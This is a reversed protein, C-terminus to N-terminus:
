SSIAIPVTVVLCREGCRSLEPIVMPNAPSEGTVAKWALTELHVIRNRERHGYPCTFRSKGGILTRGLFKWQVSQRDVQLKIYVIQLEPRKSPARWSM